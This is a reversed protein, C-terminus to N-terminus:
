SGELVGKESPFYNIKDVPLYYHVRRAISDYQVLREQDDDSGLIEPIRTIEYSLSLVRRTFEATSIRLRQAYFKLAEKEKLDIEITLQRTTEKKDRYRRMYLRNKERKIDTNKTEETDM